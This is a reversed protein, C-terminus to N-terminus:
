KANRGKPPKSIFKVKVNSCNLQACQLEFSHLRVRVPSKTISSTAMRVCATSVVLFTTVNKTVDRRFNQIQASM